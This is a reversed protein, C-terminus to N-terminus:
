TFVRYILNSLRPHADAAELIDDWLAPPTNVLTDRKIVQRWNLRAPDAGPVKACHMVRLFEDAILGYGITTPHFCDLSFFGGSTRENNQSEFRLVSPVPCVTESLLLHNERHRETFFCELVARPERNKRRRRIALQDLMACIDVIHWRNGNGNGNQAEITNRIIKNFCDIRQDIQQVEERTLHPDWLSNFNAQTAYFRGYYTFYNGGEMSDNDGSIGRTIPAITVHPVTGVFVQTEESIARAIQEIM